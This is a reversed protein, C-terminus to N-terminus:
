DESRDPAPAANDILSVGSGEPFREILKDMVSQSSACYIVRRLGTAKDLFKNGVSTVSGFGSIDLTQLLRAESLFSSGIHTLSKFSSFDLSLLLFSHSIFRNGISILNCDSINVSNLSRAYSLFNDGVFTLKNLQGM